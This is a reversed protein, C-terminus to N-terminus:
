FKSIILLLFKLLTAIHWFLSVANDVSSAVKSKNWDCNLQPLKFCRMSTKSGLFRYISVLIMNKHWIYGCNSGFPVLVFYWFRCYAPRGDQICSKMSEGPLSCRPRVSSIWADCYIQQHPKFIHSVSVGPIDPTKSFHRGCNLKVKLRGGPFSDSIFPPQQRYESARLLRTIM